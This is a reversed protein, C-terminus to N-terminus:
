SIRKLKVHAVQGTTGLADHFCSMRTVDAPVAVKMWLSVDLYLQSRFVPCKFLLVMWIASIDLDPLQIHDIKNSTKTIWWKFLLNRYKHKLCHWHFKSYLIFIGYKGVFFVNKIKNNNNIITLWLSNINELYCFWKTTLVSFWCCYWLWYM